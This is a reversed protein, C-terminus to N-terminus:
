ESDDAMLQLGATDHFLSHTEVYRTGNTAVINIAMTMVAGHSIGHKARLTQYYGVTPHKEHPAFWDETDKTYLGGMDMRYEQFGATRSLISMLEVTESVEPKIQAMSTMTIVALLISIILQKM